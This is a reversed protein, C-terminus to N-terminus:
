KNIWLKKVARSIVVFYQVETNNGVSIFGNIKMLLCDVSEIGLLTHYLFTIIPLFM